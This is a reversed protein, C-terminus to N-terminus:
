KKKKKNNNRDLFSQLILAASSADKMKNRGTLMIAQRTTLYEPELHVFLGTRKELDHTFKLIESQIPNPEFSFNMSEGVVIEAVNEKECLEELVPFLLHDNPLVERPFAVKGDQDSLSIGIRKTGYDIGLYRKSM